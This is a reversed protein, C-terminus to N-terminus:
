RPRVVGVQRCMALVPCTSCRPRSGTCIHKGFPVLLANLRVWDRRPLHQELEVTVKEPTRSTTLGWRRTVRQVHVDVAVRSQGCAIGLVLNACKPGVGKFSRLVREDCPLSGSFEDVIRAAIAHLQRAKAEHFTAPILLRDLAIVNLRALEAPTRAHTYLKTAVRLTVEDLTRISIVCAVLLEFPSAHGQAALAFLAAAPYQRVAQAVRRLVVALDFAEKGAAQTTTLRQARRPTVAQDEHLREM